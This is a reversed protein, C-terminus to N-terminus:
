LQITVRICPDVIWIKIFVAKTIKYEDLLKLEANAVLAVEIWLTLM